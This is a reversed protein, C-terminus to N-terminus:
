DLGWTQHQGAPRCPHTGFSHGSAGGQGHHVAVLSMAMTRGVDNFITDNGSTVYSRFYTMTVGLMGINATGGGGRGGDEGEEKPAVTQSSGQGRKHNSV